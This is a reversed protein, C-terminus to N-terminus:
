KRFIYENCGTPVLAPWVKIRVLERQTCLKTINEISSYEYPYGGVWDVVDYYFNMGREKLNPYQRTVVLKAFWIIPLLVYVMSRQIWTPAFCYAQKIKKWIPSTWHYNYISIVLYGGPKVLEVCRELAQYMNGTHHLVGWSHVVDYGSPSEGMLISCTEDSLISGTYLKLDELNVTPFYRATLSITQRNLEEIDLGVVKAGNEAACLSSLGQGFGVDLFNINTLDIGHMLVKFDKRAQDANVSALANTSFDHWNKGFNFVKM